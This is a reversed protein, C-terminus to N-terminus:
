LESPIGALMEWGLDLLKLGDQHQQQSDTPSVQKQDSINGFPLAAPALFSLFCGISLSALLLLNQLLGGLIIV